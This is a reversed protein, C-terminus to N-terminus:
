ALVQTSGPGIIPVPAGLNGVGSDGIRIVPMAAASGLKVLSGNLNIMQGQLEITSGKITMSGSSADITVGSSALTVSAGSQISAKVGSSDFKLTHHNVGDTITIGDKDLVIEHKHVGEVIRILEEGSKDDFLILHGSPTKIARKQPPDLDLETPYKGSISQVGTWLPLTGDGGEFEVWVMTENEPVFFWGYPLAARADMLEDPPFIAPVSVKVKGLKEADKNDKVVGSYKGFYQGGDAM